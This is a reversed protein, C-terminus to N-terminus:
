AAGEATPRGGPPPAPIWEPNALAAPRRGALVDAVGRAADTFTAATARRSLGMLHPTLVADPHDFLPHHAPPEPEFVDLGVGSLQGALLADLVADADVLAGRGCNILLAGPKVARLFGHSVLHRTEDTLPAHLTIVDSRAAIESLRDCRVDAPPAVVPDHALVRMGLGRALQGVRRGIRGYGIIGITSGELDGVAVQHRRAWGGSRVLDTLPGFRKALHLAMGIVAEAVASTGSGPTIVVAIGRETAAAVDVLDVGVGTRALVRLNPMRALLAKDIVADARVIAGAAAALDDPQPRTVFTAVGRLPEAVLAPDVTGLGVVIAASAPLAPRETV